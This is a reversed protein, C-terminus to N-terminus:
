DHCHQQCQRRAQPCLRSEAIHRLRNVGVVGGDRLHPMQRQRHFPLHHNVWERLLRIRHEPHLIHLPVGFRAGGLLTHRTPTNGIAGVEKVLVGVPPEVHPIEGVVVRRHVSFPLRKRERSQGAHGVLIAVMDVVDDNAAMHGDRTILLTRRSVDSLTTGLRVHAHQHVVRAASQHHMGRLAVLGVVVQHNQGVVLTVAQCAVTCVGIEILFERRSLHDIRCAVADAKVLRAALHFVHAVREAVAPSTDAHAVRLAARHRQGSLAENLLVSEGVLQMQSARYAAVTRVVHHGRQHVIHSLMLIALVQAHGDHHRENQFAHAVAIGIHHVVLHAVIDLRLEELRAEQVPEVVLLLGGFVDGIRPFLLVLVSGGGVLVLSVAVPRRIEM